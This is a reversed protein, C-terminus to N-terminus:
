NGASNTSVGTADSTLKKKKVTTKGGFRITAADLKGAEGPKCTGAAPEGVVGEGLTAPKGDKTIMTSSTIDFTLAGVTLTMANTDIASVTGKFTLGQKKPKVPKASPANTATDQACSSAPVALVFATFLGVATINLIIKKM